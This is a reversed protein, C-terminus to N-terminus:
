NTKKDSDVIEVEPNYPDFSDKANSYTNKLAVILGITWVFALGGWILFVFQPLPQTFLGNSHKITAATEVTCTFLTMWAFPGLKHCYKNTTYEYWEKSTAIAVLGWLAVRYKLMDHEAPVYLEFKLFFNNCDVALCILVFVTVGLYRQVDRTAAWNYKELAQPSLKNFVNSM